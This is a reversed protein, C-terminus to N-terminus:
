KHFGLTQSKLGTAYAVPTTKLSTHIRKTNYYHIYIAIAEHLLALDKYHSVRGFEKKSTVLGDNWLVM